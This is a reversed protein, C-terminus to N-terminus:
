RSLILAASRAAGDLDVSSAPGRGRAVARAAAARLAEPSLRAADLREFQPLGAFADARLTQEREGAEAFPAIVAPTRSQLLDVATNYGFLSVSAAAAGLRARYDPGAREVVVPAGAARRRLAAIRAEADAGGVRLRWMRADGRAAEVACALLDAGLAGGGEAVLIEDPDGEPPPLPEAVYGTHLTLDAVSEAQTWARSLPARAADGHVLAARYWRRLREETEAYRAPKRPPEPLDRVSCFAPADARRLAAEFEAALIRRGFPFLETVLADPRFEGILGALMDARRAMLAGDAPRGEADRLTAYDHGEVRLPPLQALAVPGPDLHPLPRGGSIVLPEAGAAALARALTLTRALHGSGSLHCVLLAVRTM